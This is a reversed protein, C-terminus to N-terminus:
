NDEQKDQDLYEGLVAWTKPGIKEDVVLGHEAQFERIAQKTMPGIDADINGKYFGANKLAMQIHKNTPKYPGVFHKPIQPLTLEAPGSETAQKPKEEKKSCGILCFLILLFCLIVRSM